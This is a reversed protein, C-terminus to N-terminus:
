KHYREGRLITHARYLQELLILRTMEHTFTMKSLSLVLDAKSLIDQSLGWPGGVIFVIEQTGRNQWLSIKKALAESDLVQGQRDLVVLFCRQPIVKLIRNAETQLVENVSAHDEIKEDKIIQIHINCYRKIRKLYDVEGESIYSIRTKGVIVVSRVLWSRPGSGLWEFRNRNAFLGLLKFECSGKHFNSDELPVM